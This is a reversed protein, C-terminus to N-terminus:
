AKSLCKKAKNYVFKLFAWNSVISYLCAFVLGLICLTTNHSYYFISVVCLGIIVLFLNPKGYSVKVYKKLDYHRYILMILYAVATSVVAAYLGIFHVLVLDIVINIVAAVVSTSAVQKTMKKAVYIASYVSVLCNFLVALIAIPIYNYAERYEPGIIMDFVFPLGAIILVGLSSFIKITNNAVDSFFEDRDKDDIHVSASETWSMIFVNLFNTLMSPFKTTIAYIGNASVGLFISVITRDSANILWWSIGNPVLPWSYKLMKRRLHKSSKTKFLFEKVNLSFFLYAGCLTNALAMSILISVAGLHCFCILIINSAVTVLGAIISGITYKLNDGVGRAIQLFLNSIVVSVACAVVPIAYKWQLVLVIIVYPIAVVAMRAMISKISTAIVEACKVKDGRVDILHRFTAMEQQITIVPTLLTIYTIILDVAGYEETPLMYTYLPVLFFSLFQTFIKGFLLIATNKILNKHRSM